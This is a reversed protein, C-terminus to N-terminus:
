PKRYVVTCQKKGNEIVVSKPFESNGSFYRSMQIFFIKYGKGSKEIKVLSKDQSEQDTIELVTRNTSRSWKITHNEDPYTTDIACEWIALPNGKAVFSDIDHFILGVIRDQEIIM